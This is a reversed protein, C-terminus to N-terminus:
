IKKISRIFKTYEEAHAELVRAIGFTLITVAKRNKVVAISWRVPTDKLLGTGAETTHLIGNYTNQQPDGDSKLETLREKLGQKIGVIVNEYEDEVIISVTVAGDEVLLVVNKDVEVKWGRPVEFELAADKITYISNDQRESRAAAESSTRATAAMSLMVLLGIPIIAPLVRTVTHQMLRRVKPTM